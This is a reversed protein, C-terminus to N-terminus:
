LERHISANLGLNIPQRGTGTASYLRVCVSM